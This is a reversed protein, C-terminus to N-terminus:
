KNQEGETRETLVQQIKTERRRAVEESMPQIDGAAILAMKTLMPGILEYILM